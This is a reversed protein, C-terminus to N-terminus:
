RSAAALRWEAVRATELMTRVEPDARFADALAAGLRQGALVDSPYHVGALVRDYGAQLGAELLAERRSPALEGLIRAVLVGRTAHSSPYSFTKEREVAPAVRPDSQYPRPRAFSKKAELISRTARAHVLDLLARTRPYGAPDFAPGLAGAFADLGLVLERTARAVDEATRTRQLWLVVALDAKAEDTGAAPPPALVAVPDASAAGPVSPLPARRADVHASCAFTAVLVLALTRM